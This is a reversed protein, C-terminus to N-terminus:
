IYVVWRDASDIGIGYLFILINDKFVEHQELEM